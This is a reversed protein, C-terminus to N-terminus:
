YMLLCKLSFWPLHLVARGGPLSLCRNHCAFWIEAKGPHILLWRWDCVCMCVSRWRRRWIQCKGGQQNRRGQCRWGKVRGAGNGGDVMEGSSDGGDKMKGECKWFVAGFLPFLEPPAYIIHHAHTHAFSLFLLITLALAGPASINLYHNWKSLDHHPGQLSFGRLHTSSNGRDKWREM